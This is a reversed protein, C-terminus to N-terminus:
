IRAGIELHNKITAYEDETLACSKLLIDDRIGIKGIDHLLAGM